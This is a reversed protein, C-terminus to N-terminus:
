THILVPYVSSTRDFVVIPMVLFTLSVRMGIMVLLALLVAV